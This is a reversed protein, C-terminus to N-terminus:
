SNSRSSNYDQAPAADDPGEPNFNEEYSAPSGISKRRSRDDDIGDEPAKSDGADPDDPADAAGEEEYMPNEGETGGEEHMPSEGTREEGLDEDRDWGRDEPGEAPPKGEPAKRMLFFIAAVVGLIILLMIFGVTADIGEAKDEDKETSKSVTIDKDKVNNNKRLEVVEDEPDGWIVIEWEGEVADWYATYSDSGDAGITINFTEILTLDGITMYSTNADHYYVGITFEASANGINELNIVISVEEDAKPESPVMTITDIKLDPLPATGRVILQEMVTDSWLGDDNRVRLTINHTGVSLTSKNFMDQDSLEMADDINSMWEYDVITGGTGHGVFTVKQGPEAPNPTISDIYAIPKVPGEAEEVALPTAPTLLTFNNAFDSTNVPFGVAEQEGADVLEVVITWDGTVTENEGYEFVITIEGPEGHENTATANMETGNPDTITLKFTDGENEAGTHDEEDEWTITFTANGVYSTDELIFTEENGEELYGTRQDSRVSIWGDSAEVYYTHNGESILAFYTYEVGDTYDMDGSEVKTMPYDDGDIMVDIYEPADDDADTYTINFYIVTSTNGGLPEISFGSLEPAQDVKLTEDPSWVWEMGDFASFNFTYEGFDLTTILTYTTNPGCPCWDAIDMIHITGGINLDVETANVDEVDSYIVTFNFVTEDTGWEPDVSMDSLEPPNNVYLMVVVPDSWLEDENMVTFSINHDGYSLDSSNYEPGNHLMGDIDSTWNWETINGGSGHGLFHVLDFSRAPNPSLEDIYAIPKVPVDSQNVRIDGGALWITVYGDSASFNYTYNGALLYTEYEYLTANTYNTDMADVQSMLYSDNNLNVHVWEPEDGDLDLYTVNFTFLMSSNGELPYLSGDMIEPIQNVKVHDIVTSTWEVGDYARFSFNHYGFPLTTNYLYQAGGTCPCSGNLDMMYSGWDFDIYILTAEETENDNYSVMFTFNTSNDGWSPDVMWMPLEPPHNVVPGTNNVSYTWEWTDHASLNFTHNGPDLTTIYMYTIGDFSIDDSSNYKWMDQSGGGNISITMEEATANEFDYFDAYFTYTETSAGSMPDASINLILAPVNVYPGASCNHGEWRIGDYATFDMLHAGKSLTINEDTTFTFWWGTTWDGTGNATMNYHKGDIYVRVVEAARGEYDSYKVYYTYTTTATGNKPSVSCNTLKPAFEGWPYNDYQAPGSIVRIPHSNNGIGDGDYDYGMYDTWYNGITGNDWMNGGYTSADSVQSAGNDIFENMYVLNSKSKFSAFAEVTNNEFLNYEVTTNDCGIVAIGGYNDTWSGNDFTFNDSYYVIAALELAGTYQVDTIRCHSSYYAMLPIFGDVIQGSLTVNTSNVLIVQAYDGDLLLDTGNAVYMIPKSDYTNNTPIDHTNVEDMNGGNLILGGGVMTNNWFTGDFVSDLYIGTTNVALDCDRVTTNGDQAISIGNVAGNVSVREIISGRVHELHIGDHVGDISVDMISFIRVFQAYVAHSTINSMVLDSMTVFDCNYLDIAYNDSGNLILDKIDIIDSMYAKIASFELQDFTLLDFTWDNDDFNMKIGYNIETFNCKKVTIEDSGLSYIGYIINDFTCNRVKSTNTFFLLVGASTNAFTQNEVIFDECGVLIVQGYNSNLLESTDETRYELPLGNVTNDLTIKHYHNTYNGGNIMLGSGVMTNTGIFANYTYYLQVGYTKGDGTLNNNSFVNEYGYYDIIGANNFHMDNGRIVAHRAMYVNAAMWTDTINNYAMLLDNSFYPRVGSNSVNTIYNEYLHVDNSEYVWMGYLTSHVTSNLVWCRPSQYIYIGSNGGYVECDNITVDASNDIYIGDPHGTVSLGQLLVKDDAIYFGRDGSMNGDPDGDVMTEGTGNGYIEVQANVTCTENYTGAYVYITDGDLSNDLADQITEYDAGPWDDDVYIDAGEVGVVLTLAMALMIGVIVLSGFRMSNM